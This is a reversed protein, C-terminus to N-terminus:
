RGRTWGQKPHCAGSSPGSAQSATGRDSSVSLEAHASPGQRGTVRVAYAARMTTPPAHVPSRRQGSRHLGVVPYDDLLAAASSLKAANLRRIDDDLFLIRTWGCVRGILLGLNRKKSIDLAASSVRGQPLSTGLDLLRNKTGSRVTLVTVQDPRLGDLAAPLGPPPADTYVAILHCRADAAFQVAPRLQEASRITPSSSRMSSPNRSPGSDPHPISLASLFRLFGFFVTM